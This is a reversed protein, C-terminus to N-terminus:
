KWWEASFQREVIRQYAFAPRWGYLGSLFTDSAVNKGQKGALCLRCYVTRVFPIRAARGDQKPPSLSSNGAMEHRAPWPLLRGQPRRWLLRGISKPMGGNLILWGAGANGM